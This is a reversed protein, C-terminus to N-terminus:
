FPLGDDDDAASGFGFEEDDGSSIQSFAETSESQYSPTNQAPAEFRNQNASDSNKSGCFSVNDAVIEVATRRNGNKDEYSRTQISGQVAIMSGKRFYRTVFDATQRWATVNIFDAQREEGPRVFSRDVAVCFTTVSIGSSTTRLEPDATLRGMIVACNIM